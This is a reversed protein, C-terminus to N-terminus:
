MKDISESNGEIQDTSSYNTRVHGDSSYKNIIFYGEATMWIEGSNQWFTELLWQYKINIILYMTSLLVKMHTFYNSLILDGEVSFKTVYLVNATKPLNILLVLKM